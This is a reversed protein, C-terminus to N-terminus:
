KDEPMAEAASVVQYKQYRFFRLFASGVTEQEKPEAAMHPPSDSM